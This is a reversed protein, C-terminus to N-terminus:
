YGAAEGDEQAKEKKELRKVREDRIHQADKKTDNQHKASAELPPDECTTVHNRRQINPFLALFCKREGFSESDDSGPGNDECPATNIDPFHAGKVIYNNFPASDPIETSTSSTLAAQKQSKAIAYGRTKYIRRAM